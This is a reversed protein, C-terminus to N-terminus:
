HSSRLWAKLRGVGDQSAWTSVRRFWKDATVDPCSTSAHGLYTRADDVYGSALLKLAIGTALRATALTEASFENRTPSVLHAYRAQRTALMNSWFDPALWTKLQHNSSHYRYTTLPEPVYAVGWRSAVRAWYEEDSSYPLDERFLGVDLVANRRLIASSCIVGQMVHRVAEDGAEFFVIDNGRQQQRRLLAGWYRTSTRRSFLPRYNTHVLGVEPHHKFIPLVLSLFSPDLLDDGHPLHVCERTGYQLCANWNPVMGVNTPNRIVSCRAQWSAPIYRTAPDPSCDDFVTVNHLKEPVNQALMRRVAQLLYEGKGYYPINSDCTIM